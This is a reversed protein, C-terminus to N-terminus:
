VVFFHLVAAELIVCTLVCYMFCLGVERTELNRTRSSKPVTTRFKEVTGSLYQQKNRICVSRLWYFYLNSGSANIADTKPALLSPSQNACALFKISIRPVCSMSHASSCNNSTTPLLQRSKQQWINFRLRSFRSIINDDTPGSRYIELKSNKYVCSIYQSCKYFCLVLM